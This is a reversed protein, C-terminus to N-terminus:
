SCEEGFLADLSTNYHKALLKAEPVTFVQVGKEKKAYTDKHINLIKAADEQTDGAERRQIFLKTCKPM